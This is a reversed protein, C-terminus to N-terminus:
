KDLLKELLEVTRKSADRTEILTFMMGFVLISVVLGVLVGVLGGGLAMALNFGGYGSSGGAIFGGIAYGLTVLVVGVKCLSEFWSSIRSKINSKEVLETAKGAFEKGSELGTELVQKAQKAASSTTNMELIFIDKAVEGDCVFDVSAGSVVNGADKVEDIGFAYREGDEGRILGKADSENFKLVIGKV